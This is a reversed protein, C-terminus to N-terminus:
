NRESQSQQQNEGQESTKEGPDGGDVFLLMVLNWNSWSLFGEYFGALASTAEERFISIQCSRM